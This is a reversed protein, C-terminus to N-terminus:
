PTRGEEAPVPLGHRRFVDKLAKHQAKELYGDLEAAEACTWKWTVPGEPLIYTPARYNSWLWLRKRVIEATARTYFMLARKVREAMVAEASQRRRPCTM